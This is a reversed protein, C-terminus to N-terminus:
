IVTWKPLYLDDTPADALVGSYWMSPTVTDAGSLYAAWWSFTSNAMILEKATALIYFDVIPSNSTYFYKEGLVSKAVEINDTVILVPKKKFCKVAKRYYEADLSHWAPNNYNRYHCIIYDMPKCQPIIQFYYRILDECHEFYKWSGFEGNLDINDPYDFGKFGFDINYGNVDTGPVKMKRLSKTNGPLHNVFYKQNVWEPFGYQYGKKTAIGIIGAIKFMMNGLSADGINEAAKRYNILSNTIM